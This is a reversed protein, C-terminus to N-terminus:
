ENNSKIFSYVKETIIQAEKTLDDYSELYSVIKKAFNVKDSITKGDNGKRYRKTLGEINTEIFEGLYENKYDEVVLASLDLGANGEKEIIYKELIPPDIINEIERAELCYFRDGLVEKLNEIRKAKKSEPNEKTEDGDAILFLKACLSDVNINKHEDDSDLFSWHTINGGGYEVFSYHLDEKFEKQDRNQKIYLDLYKRIYIRDTIGEVWITCNSLFVSSNKVGLLSLVNTDNNEVNEILFKDKKQRFSYVSINSFDLTMDLFHNSHTTFYYQFSEFQPSSLTELFVRQFGPHLFLDPEEYYISMRKGQNFFLPYTLIIIAQIGDGLEYVPKENKADEGILVHVVDEGEISVLSFSQGDFFTDGIFKEFESVKERDEKKGLLMKRIDKYLSLGTYISLYENDVDINKFYDKQTRKKYDDSSSYFERLGRLIPIYTHKKESHILSEEDLSERIEKVQSVLGYFHREYNTNECIKDLNFIVWKICENLERFNRENLFAIQIAKNLEKKIETIYEHFVTTNSYPRHIFEARKDIEDLFGDIWKKNLNLDDGEIKCKLDRQQFLMRLFRSKGSNNAGIFINVKSINSLIKAEDKEIFYSEFANEDSLNLESVPYYKNKLM